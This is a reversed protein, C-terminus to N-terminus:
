LWVEQVVEGSLTVYTADDVSTIYELPIMLVDIKEDLVFSANVTMETRIASLDSALLKILVQYQVIDNLDRTGASSVYYVEGTLEQDEIADLELYVKQGIRINNVEEEEILIEVYKNADIAM